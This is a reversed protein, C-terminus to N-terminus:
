PNRGGRWFLKGEETASPTTPVDQDRLSDVHNDFFVFCSMKQHVAEPRTINEDISQDWWGSSNWHGDGVLCTGSPRRTSVLRPLLELYAGLGGYRNMGYSAKQKAHLIMATQCSYISAGLLYSKLRSDPMVYIYRATLMRWYYLAASDSVPPLYDSYDIGYQSFANGIQKLQSVCQARRAVDRARSLAPLLMAALIAIIAIVVLLEVLTFRRLRM